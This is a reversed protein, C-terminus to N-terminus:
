NRTLRQRGLARHWWSAPCRFLNTAPCPGAGSSDGAGSHRDGLVASTSCPRSRSPSWLGPWELHWIVKSRGWRSGWSIESSSYSRSHPVWWVLYRGTGDEKSGSGPPHFVLWGNACPSPPGDAHVARTGANPSNVQFLIVEFKRSCPPGIVVLKQRGRAM